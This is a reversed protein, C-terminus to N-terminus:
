KKCVRVRDLKSVFLERQSASLTGILEAGDEIAYDVLRELRKISADVLRHAQDFSPEDKRLQAFMLQQDRHRQRGIVNLRVLYDDKLGWVKARQADSADFESLTYSLFQNVIWSDETPKFPKDLHEVLALRQEKGFRKYVEGVKDIADHYLAIGPASIARAQQKILEVDLAEAQIATVLEEQKVLREARQTLSSDVLEDVRAKVLARQEVSANMADMAEEVQEIVGERVEDEPKPTHCEEGNCASAHLAFLAVSVVAGVGRSKVARAMVGEAEGSDRHGFCGMGRGEEVGLVSSGTVAIRM